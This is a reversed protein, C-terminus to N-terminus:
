EGAAVQWHRRYTQPVSLVAHPVVNTQIAMFPGKWSDARYWEGDEVLYWVSKHRYLDYDLALHAYSVGNKTIPTMKPKKKFYRGSAWSERSGPEWFKRYDNPIFQVEEPLNPIDAAVFPGRWSGAEYWEGDDVLYWRDAFRYLDYGPARRQYYVDTNPIVHMKPEVTVVNGSNWYRVPAAASSEGAAAMTMALVLGALWRDHRKM